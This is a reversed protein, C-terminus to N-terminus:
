GFILDVDKCMQERKIKREELEKKWEELEKQELRELTLNMNLFHINDMEKFYDLRPNINVKREIKGKRRFRQDYPGEHNADDIDSTVLRYYNIKDYQKKVLFREARNHHRLAAEVMQLILSAHVGAILLRKHIEEANVWIKLVGIPLSNHLPIVLKIVETIISHESAKDGAYSGDNIESM